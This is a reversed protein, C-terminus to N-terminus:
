KKYFRYFNQGHGGNGEVMGAGMTRVMRAPTAMAVAASSAPMMIMSPTITCKRVVSHGEGQENPGGSDDERHSRMPILSSPLGRKRLSPADAASSPRPWQLM